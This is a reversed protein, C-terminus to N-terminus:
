PIVVSAPSPPELRALEAGLNARARRERDPEVDLHFLRSRDIFSRLLAARGTRWAADDVHAYERRVGDAYAQYAAQDAALVALDADILVAGATDDPRPEHGATLLVLRGVEACGALPEGLEALVREGLAASAAENTGAPARPDYVADHFWAALRVQRATAGPLDVADALRQAERLVRAVHTETHYCRGPERHRTLLAALAQDAGPRRGVDAAWRARLERELSADSVAGTQGSRWSAAM